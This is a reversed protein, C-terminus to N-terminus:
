QHGSMEHEGSSNDKAKRKKRGEKKMRRINIAVINEKLSEDDM